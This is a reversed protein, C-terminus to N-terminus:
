PRPDPRKFPTKISYMGERFNPIYAWPFNPLGYQATTAKDNIFKPSQMHGDGYGINSGGAHRLEYNTQNNEALRGNNNDTMDYGRAGNCTDDGVEMFVVMQAAKRLSDFKKPLRKTNDDPYQPDQDTMTCYNGCYSLLFLPYRKSGDPLTIQDSQTTTHYYLDTPCIYFDVLIPAFKGPSSETQGMAYPSKSLDGNTPTTKRISKYLDEWPNAGYKDQWPMWGKNTENYMIMAQYTTRLGTSCTVAQAQQRARQLSPILVAVLLAIIAVVVLVEILTFAFSKKHTFHQCYRNVANETSPSHAQFLRISRQTMGLSHM